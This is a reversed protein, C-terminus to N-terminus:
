CINHIFEVMFYYQADLQVVYVYSWGNKFKASPPPSHAVKSGM